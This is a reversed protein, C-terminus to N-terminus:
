EPLICAHFDTVFARVSGGDLRGRYVTRRWRCKSHIRTVNWRKVTNPADSRCSNENVVVASTRVRCIERKTEDSFGNMQAPDADGEEKNKGTEENGAYQQIVHLAGFPPRREINATGQANKGQIVEGKKRSDEYGPNEPRRRRANGWEPWKKEVQLIDWLNDVGPRKAWEEHYAM